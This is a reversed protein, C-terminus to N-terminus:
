LKWILLVLLTAAIYLIYLQLNGGQIWRLRAIAWLIAKFAPRYIIEQFLDPTHTKLRAGKPFLGEVPTIEDHTRLLPSFLETLPRAFSSSSYQMRSSGRQYGCGWTAALEVSRGSLLNKRLLWLGCFLLTLIGTVLLLGLLPDTALPLQAAVTEVPLSSIEAIAPILSKVIPIALFAALFCSISLAVMAIKMFAGAEHVNEAAETRAEGLFVVGFAKTFCAMALGGILALGLLVALAPLSQLVGFSGVGKFAGVYLIFESAFGNLPPLGCIAVSAILFTAGTWPMAKMLGGLRDMERTGTAHLVSGAGFFLLGKFLAHNLVHFLGGAFGLVTLPVSGVAVGLFGLGLGLTIIGINEVSHYALLRKLDHQALAFLVGLIGSSLGIGILLWAWWIEPKGLLPIMRLLGYIGTKIMVGSMVASVHSPAAPHAEPLWVHLPMFGAKTGFGVIALLFLTGALLSPLTKHASMAAIQDFDLSGAAQGLLLFFVLLFATGLHTAVLYIWSAKRVEEKEDEFSVLFFSFIAMAEWAVLFLIGNRAVVVFAMSCALLNFFLWHSGQKEEKELYGVAYIAAIATLLLIPLLFFASLPDIKLFFSGYPVSWGHHFALKEGRFLVELVPILAIPCGVLAGGAGLIGSWRRSSVLLAGVGGFALCCLGFLFFFMAFLSM